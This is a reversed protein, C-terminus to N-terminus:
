NNAISLGYVYYGAVAVFTPVAAIHILALVRQAGKRGGILPNIRAISIGIMLSLIM